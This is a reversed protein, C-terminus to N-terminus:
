PVPNCTRMPWEPIGIPAGTASSPTTYTRTVFLQAPEPAMVILQYSLDATQTVAKPALELRCSNALYAVMDGDTAAAGQAKLAAALCVDMAASEPLRAEGQGTSNITCNEPPQGGVSGELTAIRGDEVITLTENEFTLEANPTADLAACHFRLPAAAAPLGVLGGALSCAVLARRLPYPM